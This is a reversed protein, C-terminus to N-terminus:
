LGQAFEKCFKGYDKAGHSKPDYTFIDKQTSPAEALSINSRIKTKFVKDKLTTEVVQAVERDLVRRKDFHTLLVGSIKIKKNIRQKIKNVVEILKTLGQIALFQCQVPVVVRDSATLANLTLLGFSPTCDILIIDYRRSLPKLLDKLIFERGTESALEIEVGSLDLKSPVVELGKSVKLPTLPIRGHLAEYITKKQDLLGFSQSLNGQPDLDILLCRKCLKQRLLGTALNIATTTKGVGGKHNVVSIIHAM